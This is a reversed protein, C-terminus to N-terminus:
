IWFLNTHWRSFFHWFLNSCNNSCFGITTPVIKHTMEFLFLHKTLVFWFLPDSCTTIIVQVLCKYGSCNIITPFVFKCRIKFL